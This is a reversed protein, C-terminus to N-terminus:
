EGTLTLRSGPKEDYFKIRVASNIKLNLLNAAAGHNIAIELLDISNFLALLEGSLSDEYTLSIRDIKYHNSQIFIEYPKNQGIKTFTEKSVNTIANSFSDIYIVSGNILNKDIVPRLPVQKEYDDVRECFTSFNDGNIIHFATEIFTDLSLFNNNVESKKVRYVGEPQESSILGCIGNDSTLFFHGGIKLILLSKRSTLAANVGIIHITEKPFSHYCNRLVFAAQMVNFPQIQHNIDVIQTEPDASLIKGKVTGLYYDSKSWDTTLTIISM